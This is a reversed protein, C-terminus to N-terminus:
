DGTLDFCSMREESRLVLKGDSLVPGTWCPYALEPVQFRSLERPERADVAFLGLLGGEGLVILKGDALILSGRGYARPQRAGRRWSEDREWMLNGTTLEVCRFRADPENRGSFAYLYGEHYVPTSWHAELVTSSWLETFEDLDRGVSLLVSGIGYYAASILIRDGVVVPSAANVSQEVAARFWRNFHVRGSAPDLAVLGQRM